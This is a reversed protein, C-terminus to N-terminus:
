VESTLRAQAYVDGHRFRPCPPRMGHFREKFPEHGGGASRKSRMFFTRSPLHDVWHLSSPFSRRLDSILDQRTRDALIHLAKRWLDYLNSPPLRALHPALITLPVSRSLENEIAQAAALAQQCAQGKLPEPLHPM